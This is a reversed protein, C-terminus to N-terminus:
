RNLLAERRLEKLAELVQLASPNPDNGAQMTAVTRLGTEGFTENVLRHLEILDLTFRATHFKKRVEASTKFQERHSKFIEDVLYSLVLRPQYYPFRFTNFLGDDRESARYIEGVPIGMQQSWQAKMRKEKGRGAEDREKKFLRNMFMKAFLEKQIDVVVAEELGELRLVIEGKGETGRNKGMVSLGARRQAMGAYKNSARAEGSVWVTAPGKFQIMEHLATSAFHSLPVDRFADDDFFAAQSLASSHGESPIGRTLARYIPRPLLHFNNVPMDHAELGLSELYENTLKNALEISEIQEQSKPIEAKRIGEVVEPSWHGMMQRHFENGYIERVQQLRELSAGGGVRVFPSEREKM